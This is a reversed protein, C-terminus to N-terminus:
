RGLTKAYNQYLSNFIHMIEDSASDLDNKSILGAKENIVSKCYTEESSSLRYAAIDDVPIHCAKSLVEEISKKQEDDAKCYAKAGM